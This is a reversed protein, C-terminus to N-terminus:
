QLLFFLIIAVVDRHVLVCPLELKINEGRLKMFFEVLIKNKVKNPPSRVKTKEKLTKAAPPPPPPLPSLGDGVGGGGLGATEGSGDGLGLGGDM